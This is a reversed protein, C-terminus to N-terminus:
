TNTWAYMCMCAMASIYFDFFLNPFDMEEKWWKPGLSWNLDSAKAAFLKAYQPM